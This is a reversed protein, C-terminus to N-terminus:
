ARPAAARQLRDNIAEGIGTTPVPVVAIAKAGARDLQRLADFLNSAAERMDGSPSLNIAPGTTAPMNDGFGILAEGDKTDSANLRVPAAPAYHSVLQGPASPANKDESQTEGLPQDLASEIEERTITGPRLLVPQGGTLDVITSELGSECQGGDLVMPAESQFEATVHDARTPSLRGSRNASPAAIPLDTATLLARAVPHAPVRIAVTDLGATVLSAIGNDTTASLVLTFPGPWFAEVLTDAAANFRVFQTAIEKNLVHVILPNFSPRRKIEFIGAVAEGNTADAGLGYVTETPFAVLQGDRIRGAAKAIDRDLSSDSIPPAQM